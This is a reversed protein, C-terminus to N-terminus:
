EIIMLLEKVLTRRKYCLLQNLQYQNTICHEKKKGKDCTDGLWGDLCGFLCNGAILDCPGKCNEPCTLQCSGGHKGYPCGALLTDDQDSNGKYNLNTQLLHMLVIYTTEFVKPIVM